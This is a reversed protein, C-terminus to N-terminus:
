RTIFDAIKESNGHDRPNAVAEREDAEKEAHVEGGRVLPGDAKRDDAQGM